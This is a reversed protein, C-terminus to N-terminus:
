IEQRKSKVIEGMQPTVRITPVLPAVMIHRSSGSQPTCQVTVIIPCSVLERGVFLSSEVHSPRGDKTGSALGALPLGGDRDCLRGLSLSAFNYLFSRLTSFLLISPLLSNAHISLICLIPICGFQV